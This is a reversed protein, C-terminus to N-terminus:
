TSKENIKLEFLKGLVLEEDDQQFPHNLIRSIEAVHDEELFQSKLANVAPLSDKFLWVMKKLRPVIPNESLNRECQSVIRVYKEVAQM